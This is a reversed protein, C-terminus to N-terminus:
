VSKQFRGSLEGFGEILAETGDVEALRAKVDRLWSMNAESPDEGLALEADKLERLLSHYQRHLAVLQHWTALVDDPAAGERAGWVAQTTIGNEVRQLVQSFGGEALDSRMKEAQEGPDPSHHHDNAFAAIIGARLKHAEPHALELAAVEELHDHLLWPHNILIQLILAERRSIASRQGRMIPSAALQPSAAQYPGSPLPTPGPPGRRGGGFGGGYGGGYGQGGFRNAGGAARPQFQRAGGGQRFNGRGGFGGRGGEPAFARQLREVFDDRYYRRVVEDRIGNALEKIRAELAARREPTAFNGGELERSWIMEALPKAAAIVEEIAGRGGSRVLDDPDQGEPLLAFRLSKGPALFPLALDAARYAAKQGARDGDFCLIPEDAMKWLLALQSETLATGLPAVAGAFGATVMAIVDVYGEVVILASGDHTAKRATQHNYLNDGKHFLPTEPSNLYKAPVDKELARGGFAIVRGRLDTIPFMVRDRFRDYPVPIDDGAVLLGTEVMDEVSVGLKGLHEKLAFRDPSAYGLRFQLQTAPSIARDALYGRAKAGVRSALTEAFYTAALDMVDHLTRRRQEQRAADPTVAPLALGAMSALREVAEAFPLGDTEMVFSIIDGHKGSSFDHYFGKQDNVYFSPTKEQQFPSLGKWERGAKKLKVRKGVVESVSLRARLEDLFQPTFRM